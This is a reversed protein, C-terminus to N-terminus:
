MNWSWTTFEAWNWFTLSLLDLASEVFQQEKETAQKISTVTPKCDDGPKIIPGPISGKIRTTHHKKIELDNLFKEFNQARLHWTLMLQGIHISPMTWAPLDEISPKSVKRELFEEFTKMDTYYANCDKYKGWLLKETNLCKNLMPLCSQRYFIIQGMIKIKILGFSCSLLHFKWECQQDNKQCEQQLFQDGKPHSQCHMYAEEQGCSLYAMWQIHATTKKHGTDCPTNHQQHSTHLHHISSPRFQPSIVLYPLPSSCPKLKHTVGENYVTSKNWFTPLSPFHASASLCSRSHNTTSIWALPVYM